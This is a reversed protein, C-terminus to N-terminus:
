GLYSEPPADDRASHRGSYPPTELSTPPGVAGTASESSTSAAPGPSVTATTPSDPEAAPAYRTPQQNSGLLVTAWAFKRELLRVVLYYVGGVLSGVGSVLLTRSEDDVQVGKSVLWAALFSVLLPVWTRILSPTM